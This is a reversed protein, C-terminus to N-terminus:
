LENIKIFISKFFFYFYLYKNIIIEEVLHIILKKSTYCSFFNSVFNSIKLDIAKIFRNKDEIGVIEM